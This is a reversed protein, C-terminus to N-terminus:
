LKNTKLWIETLLFGLEKAEKNSLLKDSGDLHYSLIYKYALHCAKILDKKKVAQVKNKKMIQVYTNM